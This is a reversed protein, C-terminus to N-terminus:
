NTNAARVTTPSNYWNKLVQLAPKGRPTYSNDASGGEGYWVWWYVGALAPTNSWAEIFARYCMEQEAIDVPDSALYNWPAKAAGDISPYGVETFIFKKGDKGLKALIRPKIELWKNTLAAQDPDKSSTLKHYATIAVLDLDDWFTPHTFHDWNASYLLKGSYVKRTKHILQRWYETKEEMSGLESGVSFYEAGSAQALRAYHLIFNEYQKSWLAFNEPALVGRWEKPKRHDFRLYPFIVVSIGLQRAERTIAMLTADPVTFENEGDMPRPGILNGRIDRSYWSVNLLVSNVGLAKLERLDKKYDYGKEKSFLGLAMGKLPPSGQGFGSAAAFFGLLALPIAIYRYQLRNM